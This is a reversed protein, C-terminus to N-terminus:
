QNDIWMCNVGTRERITKCYTTCHSRVLKLCETILNSLRTTTCSSSGASFRARYPTKHLKPIWYIQPLNKEREQVKIDFVDELTSAHTQIIEDVTRDQTVYTSNLNTGSNIGLEEMLSHIYYYKCVSVINNGAKDAPVLVYKSKLETLYAKIHPDELIRNWPLFSRHQLSNIRNSIILKVTESWEELASVHCGERKSWNKAYDDVAKTLIEKNLHWDINNQERYKPGKELLRRLKTNRGIRLDGIIVHGHPEYRFTSSQCDCSSSANRYDDLDINRLAQNYNFVIVTLHSNMVVRLKNNKLAHKM